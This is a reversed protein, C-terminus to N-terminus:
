NRQPASDPPPGRGERRFGRPRTRDETGRGFGIERGEARRAASRIRARRARSRPRRYQWPQADPLPPNAGPPQSVQSFRVQSMVFEKSEYRQCRSRSKQSPTGTHELTKILSGWLFFVSASIRGHARTSISSCQFMGCLLRSISSRWSSCPKMSSCRQSVAVRAGRAPWRKDAELRRGLCRAVQNAAAQDQKPIEMDLRSLIESISVTGAIYRSEADLGAVENAYVVVEQWVDEIYRGRREEIAARVVEADELWWKAGDRYRALAEAWLQDRDPQLGDLDIRRCQVPWIRRGGTEDKFWTDSNTTGIFVCQRPVRVLRHGYPLRFRETQQSIFAKEPPAESRGLTGLESLEVIWVGRVQM